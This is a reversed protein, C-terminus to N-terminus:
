RCPLPNNQWCPKIQRKAPPSSIKMTPSHSYGKKIGKEALNQCNNYRQYGIPDPEPSIPRKRAAKNMACLTELHEHTRQLPEGARCIWALKTRAGARNFPRSTDHLLSGTRGSAYRAADFHRSTCSASLLPRIQTASAHSCAM